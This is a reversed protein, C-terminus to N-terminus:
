RGSRTRWAADCVADLEHRHAAEILAERSPFHRNLTGIGVGADKAIADLSADLGAQTFLRVASQLLRDRNRRADARLPRSEAETM